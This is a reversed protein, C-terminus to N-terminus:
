VTKCYTTTDIVKNVQAFGLQYNEFMRALVSEHSQFHVLDGQIQRIIVRQIIGPQLPDDRTTSRKLFMGEIFCLFAINFEFDQSHSSM